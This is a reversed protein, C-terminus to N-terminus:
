RTDKNRAHALHCLGIGVFLLPVLTIFTGGFDSFEWMWAVAVGIVPVDDFGPESLLRMGTLVLHVAVGAIGGLVFHREAADLRTKEPEPTDLERTQRSAIYFLGSVMSTLLSSYDLM